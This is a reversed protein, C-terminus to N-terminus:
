CSRKQSGWGTRIQAIWLTYLQMQTPITVDGTRDIRSDLSHQLSVFFYRISSQGGPPLILGVYVVGWFGLDWVQFKINKYTMTEVNFGIATFFTLLSVTVCAFNDSPTTTVVENIHMRDTHRM